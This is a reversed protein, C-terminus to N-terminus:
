ETRGAATPHAETFSRRLSALARSHRSKVTGRAVGLVSATEAESLGLFYRLAVVQRHPDPLAQVAALLLARDEAALVAAEPSPAAEGSARDEAVRLEHRVRRGAARRRNRAQNAVIRLLWPSFAAGERFSGLAGYAKVFGEQTADDADAASGTILYALRHATGQYRRVLEAYSGM